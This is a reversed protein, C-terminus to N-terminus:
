YDGIRAEPHVRDTRAPDYMAYFVVTFMIALLDYVSISDCKEYLIKLLRNQDAIRQKLGILEKFFKTLRLRTQRDTKKANEGNIAFNAMTKLAPVTSKLLDTKTQPNKFFSQEVIANKMTNQAKKMEAAVQEALMRSETRELALSTSKLVSARGCINENFEEAASTWFVWSVDKFVQEAPLEKKLASHKARIIEIFLPATKEFLPRAVIARFVIGLAAYWDQLFLIRGLDPYVSQLVANDFLHTPTGYEPTGALLPQEIEGGEEISACTELDILGIRYEDPDRLYNEPDQSEGILFMNEPKMDRLAVGSRKLNGLLKLLNITVGKAVAVNRHFNKEGVFSQVMTRYQDVVDKEADFVRCLLNSVEESFDADFRSLDMELTKEALGQFFWKRRKFSSVEYEEIDNVKLLNSLSHDFRRILDNLSFFLDELGEGYRAEFAGIDETSEMGKVIEGRVQGEKNHLKGLVDSFFAYKSLSIFLVFTNGIKLHSQLGPSKRAKEILKEEVKVPDNENPDALYHIKSLIASLNPSLCPIDAGLKQGIKQETRVADLYDEFSKIPKPPIKVVLTDDYVAKYCASKSEAGEGIPAVTMRRAHWKGERNVKLEFIQESGGDASELRNFSTLAPDPSEVGLQIRYLNLFFSAIEQIKDTGNM